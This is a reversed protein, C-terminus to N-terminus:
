HYVKILIRIFIFDSCCNTYRNKLLQRLFSLKSIRSPADAPVRVRFLPETSRRSIWKVVPANKIARKNYCLFKFKALTKFLFALM